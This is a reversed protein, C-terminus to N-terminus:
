AARVSRSRHQFLDWGLRHAVVAVVILVMGLWQGTAPVAQYWALDVLLAVAPYTFSLAAIAQSSLRQFAAYMLTYMFATHVAGLVAVAALGRAGLPADLPLALPALMLVGVGMQVAAIQAPPLHKLRQTALTVIAYLVAATCALAVGQWAPRVSGSGWELGSSLVVGVMALVLWPLRGAAIREGQFLAALAVLMFPQTHYVVTAVSISTYRYASFLCLWNVVLAAGGLVLWGLDRRSMPLWGRTWALWALLGAGGILCRFFVVVEPPQGSEVVLLGITGSLAMAVLMRWTGSRSDTNM